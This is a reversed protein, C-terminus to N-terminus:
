DLSAYDLGGGYPCPNHHPEPAFPCIQYGKYRQLRIAYHGVRINSRRSEVAPELLNGLREALLSTTLDLDAVTRADMALVHALREGPGLIGKEAFPGPRM